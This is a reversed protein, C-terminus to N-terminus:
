QQEGGMIRRIKRIAYYYIGKAREESLGNLLSMEQFTREEFVHQYILNREDERLTLLAELLRDNSINHWDPYHGKAELMLLEEKKEQELLDEISAGIELNFLDELPSEANSIKVKKALYDRRKGRIFGLLYATFQNQVKNGTYTNKDNM